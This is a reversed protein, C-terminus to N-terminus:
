RLGLIAPLGAGSSLGKRIQLHQGAQLLVSTHRASPTGIWKKEDHADFASAHM